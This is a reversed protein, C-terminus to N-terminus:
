VSILVQNRWVRQIGNKRGSKYNLEMKEEGKWEEQFGDLTTDRDYHILNSIKNKYMSVYLGVYRGGNRSFCRTSSEDHCKTGIYIMYYEKWTRGNLYKQRINECSGLHFGYKKIVLQMWFYENKSLLYAYRNVQFCSSIDKDNLYLLIKIDIDKIKFM